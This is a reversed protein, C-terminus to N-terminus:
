SVVQRLWFCFYSLLVYLIAENALASVVIDLLSQNFLDIQVSLSSMCFYFYFYFYCFGFSLSSISWSNLLDGFPIHLSMFM